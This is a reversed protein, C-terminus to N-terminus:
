LKKLVIEITYEGISHTDPTTIDCETELCRAIAYGSLEQEILPMIGFTNPPENRSTLWMTKHDPNWQSPLLKRKEYKDRHPLALILFGGPKLIRWWNQLGIAAFTLHELCHSSYVFDYTADPIGEMYTADGNVLDWTDVPKGDGLNLPDDACGIDIGRGRCYLNFFGEKLRRPQAKSTEGM